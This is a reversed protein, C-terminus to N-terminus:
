DNKVKCNVFIEAGNNPFYEVMDYLGDLLKEDIISEEMLKSMKSHNFPKIFYSGEEIVSFGLDSVIKILSPLNFTTNQQLNKATPTLTGLKEILGSKYAWLLHFSDCNPVNIHFLTKDGCLNKVSKLFILPESVEHLLCSLIIFDYERNKLSDIQNEVFDNVITIRSNYNESKSIVGCFHKSPEVVTFSDYDKYFDYISQMGCGIELINKPKYQNLIELVKKRRIKVMTDEFDHHLYTDTYKEIDRSKMFKVGRKIKILNTNKIKRKM